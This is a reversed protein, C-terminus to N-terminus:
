RLALQPLFAIPNRFDLHIALRVVVENVKDSSNVAPAADMVVVAALVVVMGGEIDRTAGRQPAISNRDRPTVQTLTNAQNFHSPVARRDPANL